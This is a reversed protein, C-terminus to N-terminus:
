STVPLTAFISPLRSRPCLKRVRNLDHDISLSRPTNTSFYFVSRSIMALADCECPASRLCGDVPEALLRASGTSFFNLSAAPQGCKAMETSLVESM